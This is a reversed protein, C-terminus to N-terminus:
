PQLRSIAWTQAQDDRSYRFRDHLRHEGGQWFEFVRPKVIYGGWCEPLPIHEQDALAHFRLELEDRSEITQSQQSCAAAQQSMLPRSHFYAAVDATDLREAEGQIRVQREFHHWPFLLSVQANHAIEQGKASSTDTFFVFGKTDFKKLLVYRQNPQGQADSTAIIMATPDAFGTEVIQQLWLQFQEVPDQQLDQRRLKGMSYNRRFDHLDM